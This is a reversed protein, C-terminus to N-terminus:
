LISYKGITGNISVLVTRDNLERKHKLGEDISVAKTNSKIVILGDSLNNGNVFYVPGNDTYKPTGHIGDGLISVLNQLRCWSWSEPLVFPIEDEEIEPLPKEKKIKKDNILQEKEAQIKELLISAPEVDPNQERWKQTLKGQIALQLILGKLEEANKPHITLEKFHKLLQM